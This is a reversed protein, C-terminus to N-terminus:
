DNRQLAAVARRYEPEQGLGAALRAYDGRRDRPLRGTRARESMARLVDPPEAVAALLGVWMRREPPTLGALEVRDLLLKTAAVDGEHFTLRAMLLPKGDLVARPMRRWFPALAGIGFEAVIAESYRAVVDTSTPNGLTTSFAQWVIAPQDQERCASLFAAIENMSPSPNAKIWTVLLHRATATAGVEFLGHALYFRVEPHLTAVTEAVEAAAAEPAQLAAMRLIQDALWPERWQEIWEKGLKVFEAHRGATVLLAALYLRENQNLLSPRQTVVDPRMLTRIAAARDGRSARLQALRLLHGGELPLEQEYRTLLALEEDTQLDTRYAGALELARQRRPQISLSRQLMAKRMVNDGSGKYADALQAYASLKAPDIIQRYCSLWYAKAM